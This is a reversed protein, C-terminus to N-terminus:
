LDIIYNNFLSLKEAQGYKLEKIVIRILLNEKKYKAYEEDFPTLDEHIIPPDCSDWPKTFTFHM